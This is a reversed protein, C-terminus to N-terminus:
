EVEIEQDLFKDSYLDKHNMWFGDGDVGCDAYQFPCKKCLIDGYICNKRKWKNYEEITLDRLKKTKPLKIITFAGTLLQRFLEYRIADTDDILHFNDTIYFITDNYENEYKDNIKFKENPEVGLLDFIKRTRETM